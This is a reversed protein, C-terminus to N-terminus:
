RSSQRRLNPRPLAELLREFQQRYQAEARAKALGSEEAFAAEFGGMRWLLTSLQSLTRREEYADELVLRFEM